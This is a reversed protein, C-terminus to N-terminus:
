LGFSSDTGNRPVKFLNIHPQSLMFETTKSLRHRTKEQIVSPCIPTFPKEKQSESFDAQMHLLADFRLTYM